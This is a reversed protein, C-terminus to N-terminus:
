PVRERTAPRRKRPAAHAPRGVRPLGPHPRGTRRDDAPPDVAREIVHVGQLLEDFDLQAARGTVAAQVEAVVGRRPTASQSIGITISSENAAAVSTPRWRLWLSSLKRMSLFSRRNTTASPM